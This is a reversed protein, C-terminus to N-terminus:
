PVVEKLLGGRDWVCSKLPEDVKLVQTAMEVERRRWHLSVQKIPRGLVAAARRVLWDGLEPHDQRFYGGRLEDEIYVKIKFHAKHGHKARSARKAEQKAPQACTRNLMVSRAAAHPGAYLQEQTLVLVEGQEDVAEVNIQIFKYTTPLQRDKPASGFSPFVVSPYPEEMYLAFLLQAWLVVFSALVMLAARRPSWWQRRPEKVKM